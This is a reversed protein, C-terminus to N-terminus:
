ASALLQKFAEKVQFIEPGSLNRDTPIEPELILNALNIMLKEKFTEIYLKEDPLSVNYLLEIFVQQKSMKVLDRKLDQTQRPMYRGDNDTVRLSEVVNHFDEFDPYRLVKLGDMDAMEFPNFVGLEDLRLKNRYVDKSITSLKDPNKPEFM